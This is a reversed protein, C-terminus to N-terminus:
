HWEVTGGSALAVSSTLILTRGSFFRLHEIAEDRSRPKDFLRGDVSAVSDSGIVLGGRQRSVSVAKQRALNEALASASAARAKEADEDIDAPVIDFRVGAQELMTRRIASASALTLM